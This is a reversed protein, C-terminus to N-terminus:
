RKLKSKTGDMKNLVSGVIVALLVLFLGSFTILFLVIKEHESQSRSIIDWLGSIAVMLILVLLTTLRFKGEWSALTYRKGQQMKMYGVLLLLSVIGFITEIM